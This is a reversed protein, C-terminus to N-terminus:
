VAILSYMDPFSLFSDFSISYASLDSLHEGKAELTGGYFVDEEESMVIVGDSVSFQDNEGRFAYVRIPEEEYTVLTYGGGIVMAAAFVLFLGYVLNMGIPSCLYQKLQKM